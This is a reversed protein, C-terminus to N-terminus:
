LNISTTRELSIESYKFKCMVHAYTCFMVHLTSYRKHSFYAQREPEPLQLGLTGRACRECMSCHWLAQQLASVSPRYHVPSLQGSFAGLWTTQQCTIANAVHNCQSVSPQSLSITRGSGVAMQFGATAFFRHLNM